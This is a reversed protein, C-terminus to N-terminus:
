NLIAILAQKFIALLLRLMAAKLSGVKLKTLLAGKVVKLVKAQELLPALGKLAVICNLELLLKRLRCLRVRALLARLWL